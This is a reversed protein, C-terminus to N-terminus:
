RRGSPPPVPQCTPLTPTCVPVPLAASVAQHSVPVHASTSSVSAAAAGALVVSLAFIRLALKM